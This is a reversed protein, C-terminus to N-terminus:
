LIQVNLLVVALVISQTAIITCGNGAFAVDMTDTPIASDAPDPADLVELADVLADLTALVSVDAAGFADLVVADVAGFVDVVVSGAIDVDGAAACADDDACAIESRAGDRNIM